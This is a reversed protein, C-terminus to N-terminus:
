LVYQALEILITAIIDDEEDLDVDVPIEYQKNSYNYYSDLRVGPAYVPPWTKPKNPAAPVGVDFEAWSVVVDVNTAKTDFEAWSVTVPTATADFEAWSVQVGM